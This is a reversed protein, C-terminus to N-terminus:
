QTTATSHVTLLFRGWGPFLSSRRLSLHDALWDLQQRVSILLWQISRLVHAHRLTTTSALRASATRIYEEKLVDLMGGRALRAIYAAYLLGLTFAPLIRDAPFAWGLPNLWDLYLCLALILIPGVVFSPLCIGATAFAMIATELRSRHLAAALIGAPIGLFLSWYLGAAWDFSASQM